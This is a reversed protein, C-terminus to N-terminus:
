NESGSHLLLNTTIVLRRKGMTDRLTTFVKYQGPTLGLLNYTVVMSLRDPFSFGPGTLSSFNQRSAVEHGWADVIKFDVALHYHFVGKDEKVQFGVPELYIILAEEPQFPKDARARLSGQQYADADLVHVNTVSFPLKAWLLVIAQRLSDLAAAPRASQNKAEDLKAIFPNAHLQTASALLLLLLALGTLIRKM